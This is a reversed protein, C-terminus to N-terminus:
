LVTALYRHTGGAKVILVKCLAWRVAIQSGITQFIHSGRRRVVKHTEVAM